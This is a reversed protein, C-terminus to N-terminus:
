GLEPPHCIVIQFNIEVVNDLPNKIHLSNRVTSFLDKEVTHSQLSLNTSVPIFFTENFFGEQCFPLSEILNIM